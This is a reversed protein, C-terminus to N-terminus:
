KNARNYDLQDRTLQFGVFVHFDNGTQGKKIPLTMYIPQKEIKAQTRNGPFEAAVDYTERTLVTLAADTLSVFYRLAARRSTDAPGRVAALDLSLEVELKGDGTAKDTDYLCAGAFGVIEGQHVIDTLDRGPGDRFVTVTAADALISVKPCPRTEKKDEWWNGACANVGLTAIVMALATKLWPASMHTVTTYPERRM